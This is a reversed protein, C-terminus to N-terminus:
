SWSMSSRSRSPRARLSIGSVPASYMLPTNNWYVQPSTETLPLRTTASADEKEKIIGGILRKGVYCQFAVIACSEYLPFTYKASPIPSVASPNIFTQTLLTRSATHYLKTVSSLSVQPLWQPAPHNPNFYEIYIGAYPPIYAPM